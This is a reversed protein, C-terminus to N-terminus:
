QRPLCRGRVLVERHGLEHGRWGIETGEVWYFLDGDHPVPDQYNIRTVKIKLPGVGYCYDVDLLDLIVAGGAPTTM